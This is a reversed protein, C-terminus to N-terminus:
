SIKLKRLATVKDKMVIKRHIDPIFKRMDDINFGVQIRREDFAIPTCLVCPNDVILSVAQNFSMDEFAAMWYELHEPLRKRTSLIDSFGEECLGVMQIVQERKLDQPTSSINVEQFELGYFIFWNKMKQVSANNKASILTIM